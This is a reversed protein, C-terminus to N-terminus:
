VARADRLAQVLAPVAGAGEGLIRGGERQRPEEIKKIAMKPGELSVGITEIPKKRAEMIGRISAYRPEHSSKEATMVAPLAARVVLRGGEVEREATLKGEAVSPEVADSICPMGLLTAALLGVQANDMDVAQKGFLILDFSRDRLYSVLAKAIALPSITPQETRLLVASDAGMALAKRLVGMGSEPGLMVLAVEAGQSDKIRLAEEIAYEDYPNVVFSVSGADISTGGPAIRPAKVTDPVQKVCVAIRM